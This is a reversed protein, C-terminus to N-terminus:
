RFNWIAVSPKVLALLIYELIATLDQSLDFKYEAICVFTSGHFIQWFNSARCLMLYNQTM